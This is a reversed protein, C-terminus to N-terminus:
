AGLDDVIDTKSQRARVIAALAALVGSSEEVTWEDAPYQKLINRMRRHIDDLQYGMIQGIRDHHHKGRHRFTQGRWPSCQLENFASRGSPAGDCAAWM